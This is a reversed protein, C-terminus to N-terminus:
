RSPLVMRAYERALGLARRVLDELRRDKRRRMWLLVLGLLVVDAAAHRAVVWAAWGLWSPWSRERRARWERGRTIQERLAAVEATLKVVAREMRRTWAESGGGGGGGAAASGRRSRRKDVPSRASGGASYEDDEGEIDEGEEQEAAAGDGGGLLRLDREAEDEESMPSLVKMPGDTGSLPQQFKRPPSAPAGGGASSKAALGKPSSSASGAGNNKIQNWM